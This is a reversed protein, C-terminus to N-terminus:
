WWLYVMICESYTVSTCNALSLVDPVFELSGRGVGAETHHRRLMTCLICTCVTNLDHYIAMSIRVFDNQRDATFTCYIPWSKLISNLNLFNRDSRILLYQKSFYWQLCNLSTAHPIWPRESSYANTTVESGLYESLGTFYVFAHDHTLLCLQEHVPIVCVCISLFYRHWNKLLKYRPHHFGTCKYSDIVCIVTQCM